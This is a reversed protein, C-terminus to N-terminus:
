PSCHLQHQLDLIRTQLETSENKLKEIEPDAEDSNGSNISIPSHTIIDAHIKKDILLKQEDLVHIESIVERNNDHKKLADGVIKKLDSNQIALVDNTEKYQKIINQMEKSKAANENKLSVNEEHLINLEQKLSKVRVEDSVEWTISATGIVMFVTFYAWSKEFREKIGEVNKM